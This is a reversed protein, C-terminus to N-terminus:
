NARARPSTGSIARAAEDRGIFLHTRMGLRAAADVNEARDDIFLVTEPALGLAQCCWRYAAPDPKARGTRSSFAVVDFHRLWRGHHLEYHAALEEPINSLLGLRLGSAALHDILSVMDEDVTSWSGIDALILAATRHEDFSVNLTAAVRHWYTTATVDARDYAARHKWYADWFTPAAVGALTTLADRAAPPQNRAIVGFLDFLVAAPAASM